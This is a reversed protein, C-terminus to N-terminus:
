SASGTVEAGNTSSPAPEGHITERQRKGLTHRAQRTARLKDAKAKLEEADLARAAKRPPFGFKALKSSRVGLAGQLLVRTGELFDSAEGIVKDRAKRATDLEEQKTEVESFPSLLEEVKAFFEAFTIPSGNLDYVKKVPFAAKKSALKALTQMIYRVKLSSPKM